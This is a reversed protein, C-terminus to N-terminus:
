RRYFAAITHVVHRQQEETLEGYIPLALSTAAAEDAVPFSRRRARSTARLVAQRHFPVPYYVENGIGAQTLHARLRTATPCACSSSTTSTTATPGSSPCSWRRSGAGRRVARSLTGANRRRAETWGALHPAKVRLVAAQLADLRFNGGVLQHYYKPQMGHGRLLRLKEALATTTADDRPGRRRLRGPEQQPLVLLLRRRRDRRGAAGQLARRHGARRGRHRRHRARAGAALMPDIDASQGYLHVPMIAKTRSTIAAFTAAPDLNFTDREIDVFVPTAGAAGRLGGDRLVLLDAHDGRRRARHGRAMMAVLLADTGSSVGIAHPVDLMAALERECAEVEAGLIFQQSDCVRAIAALVEDRIPAFQATLDLLPVRM